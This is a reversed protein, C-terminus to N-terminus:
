RRLDDLIRRAAPSPYWFEQDEPAVASIDSLLYTDCVGRIAVVDGWRTQGVLDQWVVPQDRCADNNWGLDTRTHGSMDDTLLAVDAEPVPIPDAWPPVDDEGAPRWCSVAAVLDWPDGIRSLVHDKFTTDSGCGLALAKLRAPPESMTRQDAIGDLFM